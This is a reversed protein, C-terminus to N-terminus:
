TGRWERPSAGFRNRFCRSFYASDNFGVSLAIDTVSRAPYLRLWEAAMQLRAEAIYTSPTTGASAFASQVSRPSVGSEAALRVTSLDPDTLKGAVAAKLKNLLAHDEFENRPARLAAAVLNYFAEVADNQWGGTDAGSHGSQWLSLTYSHLLQVAGSRGSIPRCIQDRLTPVRDLVPEAPMEVSLIDNSDRLDLRYHERAFNVEMDGASLEAQRGDQSLRTRGRHQIHLVIHSPDGKALDLNREVTAQPSRPRLMVLEGLRWRWMEARFLPDDSHIKTGAFAQSAIENWFRLRQQPKMMLTSFREMQHM